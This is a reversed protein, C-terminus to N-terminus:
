PENSPQELQKILAARSDPDELLRILAENAQQISVPESDTSTETQAHAIGFGLFLAIMISFAYQCNKNM